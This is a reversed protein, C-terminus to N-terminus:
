PECIKSLHRTTVSHSGESPLCELTQHEYGVAKMGHDQEVLVVRMEASCLNCRMAGGKRMVEPGLEEPGFPSNTVVCQIIPAASSLRLWGQFQRLAVTPVDRGTDGALEHGGFPAPENSLLTGQSPM